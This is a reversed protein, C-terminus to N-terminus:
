EVAVLQSLLQVFRSRPMVQGLQAIKAQEATELHVHSYFSVCTWTEKPLDRVVIELEPVTLPSKELDLLLVGREDVGRSAIADALATTTKAIVAQHGNAAAVEKVRSIFMLDRSVLIIKM